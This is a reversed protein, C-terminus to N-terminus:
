DKNQQLELIADHAKTYLHAAKLCDDGNLSSTKQWADDNDKYSREMKVTYWKGKEGENEWVSVEIARDRFKAVPQDSM